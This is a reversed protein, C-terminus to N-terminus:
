ASFLEEASPVEAEQMRRYKPNFEPLSEIFEQGESITAEIEGALEDCRSDFDDSMTSNIRLCCTVSATV